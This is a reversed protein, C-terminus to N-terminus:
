VHGIRAHTAGDASTAPSHKQERAELFAALLFALGLAVPLLGWWFAGDDASGWLALTLAGGLFLLILGIRRNRAPLPEQRYSSGFFEDPLPPLEICKEIAAMREAHYLQFMERRKRFGLYLALMVCGLGLVIALIPIMVGLVGLVVSHGM